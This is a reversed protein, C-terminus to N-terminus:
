AHRAMEQGSASARSNSFLAPMFVTRTHATPENNSQLQSGRNVHEDFACHLAPRTHMRM